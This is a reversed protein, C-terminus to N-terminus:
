ARPIISEPQKARETPREMARVPAPGAAAAGDANRGTEKGAANGAEKGIEVGIDQSQQALRVWALAMNLLINKEEATQQSEARRVCDAAYKRFNDVRGM